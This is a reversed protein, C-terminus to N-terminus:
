AGFGSELDRIANEPSARVAPRPAFDSSSPEIRRCSYTRKFAARDPELRPLRVPAPGEHTHSTEQVGAESGTGERQGIHRPHLRKGTRQSRRENLSLEGYRSESKRYLFKLFDKERFLASASIAGRSAPRFEVNLRLGSELRFKGNFNARHVPAHNSASSKGPALTRRGHDFKTPALEATFGGRCLPEFGARRAV